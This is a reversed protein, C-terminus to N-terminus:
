ELPSKVIRLINFVGNSERTFQIFGTKPIKFFQKTPFKYTQNNFVFELTDNHVTGYVTYISDLGVVLYSM